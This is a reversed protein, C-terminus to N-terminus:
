LKARGHLIGHLMVARYVLHRKLRRWWARAPDYQACHKMIARLRKAATRWDTTADNFEGTEYDHVIAPIMLGPDTPSILWRAYWPISGFNSRTGVPVCIMEGDVIVNFTCDLQIFGPWLTAKPFQEIKVTM